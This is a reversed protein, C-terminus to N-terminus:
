RIEKLLFLDEVFVGGQWVGAIVSCTEHNSRMGRQTSPPVRVMGGGGEDEDDEGFRLALDCLSQTVSEVPM